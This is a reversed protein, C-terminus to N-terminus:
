WSVLNNGFYFCGDFTGKCDDINGAWDADSYGVIEVNSDFTYLIGYGSTGNM